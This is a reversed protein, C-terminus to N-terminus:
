IERKLDLRLPPKGSRTKRTGIETPATNTDRNDQTPEQGDGEANQEETSDSEPPAALCHSRMQKKTGDQVQM